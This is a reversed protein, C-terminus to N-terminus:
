EPIHPRLSDLVCPMNWNCPIIIGNSLTYDTKKSDVGLMAFEKKWEGQLCNCDYNKKPQADPTGKKYRWAEYLKYNGAKLKISVKGEANTKAKVAKGQANVIYVIKNLYAQPTNAKEEIEPSPRAGGCYPELYTVQFSVALKQSFCLVSSLFLLIILHSKLKM